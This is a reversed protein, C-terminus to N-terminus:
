TSIGLVRDIATSMQKWALTEAKLQQKGEGTLEYFRAKRNSESLGWYSSTWGRQEMRHLAPYLSGEEVQLFEESTEKLYKTISYGHRTTTNLSQLVLMDLSGPLLTLKKERAM